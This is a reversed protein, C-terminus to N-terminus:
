GDKLTSPFSWRKYNQKSAKVSRRSVSTHVELTFPKFVEVIMEKEERTTKTCVPFLKSFHEELEKDSLMNRGNRRLKGRVIIYGLGWVVKEVEECLKEWALAKAKTIEPRFKKKAKRQTKKKEKRKSSVAEQDVKRQTRYIDVM